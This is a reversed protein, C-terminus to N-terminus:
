LVPQQEPPLLAAIEAQIRRQADARSTDRALCFTKGFRIVIKRRRPLRAGPPLAAYSGGIGVPLIPVNAVVALRALVPNIAQLRGSRTRRGEATVAVIEGAQLAALAARLSALDRGHREVPLAGFRRVCWGIFPVEFISAKAFMLARPYPNIAMLAAPDLLSAHNAVALLPGSPPLNERGRVELGHWLAFYARLVAVVLRRAWDVM